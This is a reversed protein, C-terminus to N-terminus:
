TVSPSRRPGSSPALTTGYGEYQSAVASRNDRSEDRSQVGVDRVPRIYDVSADVM